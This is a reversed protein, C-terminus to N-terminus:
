DQTQAGLSGVCVFPLDDDDDKEDGRAERALLTPPTAVSDDLSIDEDSSLMMLTIWSQSSMILHSM